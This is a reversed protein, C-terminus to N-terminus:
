VKFRNNGTKNSCPDDIIDKMLKRKRTQGMQIQKWENQRSIFTRLACKEHIYSGFKNARLADARKSLELAIQVRQDLGASNWLADFTRSGLKDCALTFYLQQFFFENM